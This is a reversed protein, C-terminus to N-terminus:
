FSEVDKGLFVARGNKIKIQNSVFSGDKFIRTHRFGHSWTTPKGKMFPADLRCLCACSAAELNGRLSPEVISLDDHMHGYYINDKLAKMHKQPHGNGVYLGHTWHTPGVKLIHNLEVFKYNRKDLELLAEVDPMLGLEQLGDFLEPMKAVMAQRLWDEHNGCLFAKACTEPLRKDIADLLERADLIEPIFRKPELNDQPWHSIGEADLFDGLIIFVDISILELCSLFCTVAAHDRNKVHTDPMAVVDIYDKGEKFLSDIELETVNFSDVLKKKYKFKNHKETKSKQTEENPTLGAAIIAASWTKFHRIVSSHHPGKGWATFERKSPAHGVESACAQIAQVFEHLSAKNM